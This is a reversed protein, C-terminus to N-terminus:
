SAMTRVQRLERGDLRARGSSLLMRGQSERRVYGRHLLLRETEQIEQPHVGLQSALTDLGAQGGLTRLTDMYRLHDGNLGDRELGCHRLVTDVTIEGRTAAIEGAGLVIHRAARPMGVAATAFADCMDDDLEVGARQAMGAVIRVMEDHTYDALHLNLCRSRLPGNVARRDTTAMVVTLWPYEETGWRSQIFQEETLSLLDEQVSKHLRHVEDIFLIGQGNPIEWLHHMLGRQDVRRSIVELWDGTEAAMLHALTTKGSGMPGTILLHGIPQQLSLAAAAKTRLQDKITEQGIYDDWCTPRLTRQDTTDM